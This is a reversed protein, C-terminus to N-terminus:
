VCSWLAPTLFTGSYPSPARKALDSRVLCEDEDTRFAGALGGKSAAPVVKLVSARWGSQDVSYWVGEPM